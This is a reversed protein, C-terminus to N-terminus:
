WALVSDLLQWRWLLPHMWTVEKHIPLRFFTKTPLLCHETCTRPLLLGNDLYGGFGHRDLLGERTSRDTGVRSNFEDIVILKEAEPVTVPLAHVYESFANKTEDSRTMPPPLLDCTNIIIAFECEQLPLRLAM